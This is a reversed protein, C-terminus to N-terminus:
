IVNYLYIIQVIVFILVMKLYQRCGLGGLDVYITNMVTRTNNWPIPFDTM